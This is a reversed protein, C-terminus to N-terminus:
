RNLYTKVKTVIDQTDINSVYDPNFIRTTIIRKYTLLIDYVESNFYLDTNYQQNMWKNRIAKYLKYDIEVLLQKLSNCNQCASLQIQM